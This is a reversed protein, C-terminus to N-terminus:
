QSVLGTEKRRTHIWLSFNWYFDTSLSLSTKINLGRKPEPLHLCLPNGLLGFTRFMHFLPRGDYITYLIHRSVAVTYIVCTIEHVRTNNQENKRLVDKVSSFVASGRMLLCVRSKLFTDTVPAPWKCSHLFYLWLTQIPTLFLLTKQLRGYTCSDM